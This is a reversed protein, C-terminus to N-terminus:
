DIIFINTSIFEVLPRVALLLMEVNLKISSDIPATMMKVTILKLESM